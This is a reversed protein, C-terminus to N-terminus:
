GSKADVPHRQGRRQPLRRVEVPERATCEAERALVMEVMGLRIMGCDVLVEAVDEISLQRQKGIRWLKYGDIRDRIIAQKVMHHM